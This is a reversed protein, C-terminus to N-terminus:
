TSMTSINALNVDDPSTPRIAHDPAAMLGAFLYRGAEREAKAKATEVLRAQHRVGAADIRWAQIM